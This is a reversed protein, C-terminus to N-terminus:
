KEWLRRSYSDHCAKFERHNPTSSKQSQAILNLNFAFRQLLRSLLTLFELNSDGYHKMVRGTSSETKTRSMWPFEGVIM